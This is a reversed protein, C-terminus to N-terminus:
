IPELSQQSIKIVANFIYAEFVAQFPIRPTFIQVKLILWM